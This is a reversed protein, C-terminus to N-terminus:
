NNSTPENRHHLVYEYPTISSNSYSTLIQKHNNSVHKFVLGEGCKKLELGPSIIDGLGEITMTYPVDNSSGEGSHEAGDYDDHRRKIETDNEAMASDDLHDHLSAVAEYPTMSSNSCGPMTQKLNEIDKESVLCVGCINAPLPFLCIFTQVHAYTIHLCTASGRSSINTLLNIRSHTLKPSYLIRSKSLQM